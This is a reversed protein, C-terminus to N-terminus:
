ELEEKLIRIVDKVMEKISELDIPEEELKKLLEEYYFLAQQIMIILESVEMDGRADKRWDHKKVKLYADAILGAVKKGAEVDSPFHSGMQVRSMGIKDAMSNLEKQKKPYKNGLVKALVHVETSHGSPFSPSDDTATKSKIKDTIEYPRPRGYKIKLKIIHIDVDEIFKKWDSVSEGVIDLMLKHHNKDYDKTQKDTLKSKGVIEIVKPLEKQNDPHSMKPFKVDISSTKNLLKKKSESLNDVWKSEDKKLINQWM